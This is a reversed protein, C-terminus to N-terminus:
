SSDELITFLQELNTSPRYRTSIETTISTEQPKKGSSQLSLAKLYVVVANKWNM